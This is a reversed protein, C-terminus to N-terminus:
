SEMKAHEDAALKEAEGPQMKWGHESAPFDGSKVQQSYERTAIELTERAQAFRKVFRFPADESLGILDHWVLVQGNCGAGAGIGVTCIGANQTIHAAAEEAVAELVLACCGANQLLLAQQMLERASDATRGQVVGEFRLASQPTYGIHGLVPAGMEALTEIARLASKGAGELKLASAGARMLLAGNKAALARTAYSGFPLDAVIPTEPKSSVKAGRAVAGVHLRVEDMTVPVTGDYGLVVNGMSDGVLLADIGAECCLKASPADYLAVM